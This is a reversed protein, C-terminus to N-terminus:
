AFAQKLAVILTLSDLVCGDYPMQPEPSIRDDKPVKRSKNQKNNNNKIKFGRKRNLYFSNVVHLCKQLFRFHIGVYSYYDSRDTSRASKMSKCWKQWKWCLHKSSYIVFELGTNSVTEGTIGPCRCFLDPNRTTETLYSM